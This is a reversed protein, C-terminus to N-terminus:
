TRDGIVLSRQVFGWYASFPKIPRDSACERHRESMVDIMCRQEVFVTFAKVLRYLRENFTKGWWIM